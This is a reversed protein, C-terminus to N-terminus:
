GLTPASIPLTKKQAAAVLDGLIVKSKGQKLFAEAAVKITLLVELEHAQQNENQDQNRWLSIDIQREKDVTEPLIWWRHGDLVVEKLNQLDLLDSLNGIPSPIGNKICRLSINFHTCAIAGYLPASAGEPIPPLLKNGQTFKRNHDLLFRIGHETTYQICIGIAPRTRDYGSKQFSKLIGHHVHKANPAGGLRNLPCVLVKNPDLQKPEAFMIMTTLTAEVREALKKFKGQDIDKGAAPGQFVDGAGSM